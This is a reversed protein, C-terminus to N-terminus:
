LGPLHLLESLDADDVESISLAFNQLNVSGEIQYRIGVNENVLVLPGGAPDETDFVTRALFTRRM